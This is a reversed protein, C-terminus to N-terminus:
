VLTKFLGGFVALVVLVRFVRWALINMFACLLAWWVSRVSCVSELCSHKLFGVLSGVLCELFEGFGLTKFLVSFLGGFVGFVVFV